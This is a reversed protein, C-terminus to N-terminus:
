CLILVNRGNQTNETYSKVSSYIVLCTCCVIAFTINGDFEPISLTFFEKLSYPHSKKIIPTKKNTRALGYMAAYIFMQNGIGMSDNIEVTLYTTNADNEIHSLCKCM